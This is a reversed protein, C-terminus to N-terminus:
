RRSFPHPRTGGNGCSGKVSRGTRMLMCRRCGSTYSYKQLDRDNIYLRRPQYPREEPVAAPVPVGPAILVVPPEDVDDPIHWAWPTAQLFTVNEIAWREDSAVRHVDRAEVVHKTDVAIRHISSGWNRGLWVGPRWRADLVVNMDKAPKPRYM